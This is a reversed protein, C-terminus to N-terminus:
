GSISVKRNYRQMLGHLRDDKIEFEVHGYTDNKDALLSKLKSLPSIVEPDSSAGPYEGVMGITPGYVLGGNAFAPVSSFGQQAVAAPGSSLLGRTVAALAVLSAGAAIATLPSVLLTGFNAAAIGTAILSKGLMDMFDALILGLRDFMSEGAELPTALASVINTMLPVVAQKISEMVDVTKASLNAALSAYVADLRAIEGVNKSTEMNLEMLATKVAEMKQRINEQRGALTATTNGFRNAAFDIDSFAQQLAQMTPKIKVIESNYSQLRKTLKIFWEDTPSLGKDILEEFLGSLFKQQEGLIDFSEGLAGAAFGKNNIIEFANDIQSAIDAIDTDDVADGLLTIEARLEQLLGVLPSDLSAGGMLLSKIATDLYEAKAADVDFDPFAEGVNSFAKMLKNTENRLRAFANDSEDGVNQFADLIKTIADYEEKVKGYAKTYDEINQLVKAMDPVAIGNEADKQLDVLRYQARALGEELERMVSGIEDYSWDQLAKDLNAWKDTVAQIAPGTKQLLFLTKNSVALPIDVPINTLDKTIAEIEKALQTPDMKKLIPTFTFEIDKLLKAGDTLVDLSDALEKAARKSDIMEKTWLAIASVAVSAAVAIAGWPTSAMAATNAKAAITNAVMATTLFKYAKIAFGILSVLKGVIILVPGAAAAIGLWLIRNKQQEASLERWWDVFVRLKESIAIIIPSLTEQLTQGVEVLVVQIAALAKNWKALGSEAFVEWAKTARGTSDAMEEFIAANDEVNDGMMDFVGTLARINGFIDNAIELSGLEEIKTSFTTLAKFLGKEAIEKRMAEASWKIQEFAEGAQESPGILQSLIQRLQVASTEASTGTRTMAAIAAGVQDFSVKLKSAVPLAIGVSKVLDDFEVKGLRVSNVIIDLANEVTLGVGKYANLASTALDAVLKVETQAAAAVKASASLVDMAEAGRIGASTIFYLAESLEKPTKGIEMSLNLVGEKWKDVQAAGVGVLSTIKTMNAEFQKAAHFAAGGALVLPATVYMSLSKGFSQLSKGVKQFSSAMSRTATGTIKDVDEIQLKAKKLADEFQKTDLGLQAILAGIKEQSAM